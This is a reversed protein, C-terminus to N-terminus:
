QNLSLSQVPLVTFLVANKANRECDKHVKFYSNDTHFQVAENRIGVNLNFHFRNMHEAVRDSCGDKDGVHWVGGDSLWDM